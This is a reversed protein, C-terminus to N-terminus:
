KGIARALVTRIVERDERLATDVTSKWALDEDRKARCYECENCHASLMNALDKRQEVPVRVNPFEMNFVSDRLTLTEMLLTFDLSLIWRGLGPYSCKLTGVTEIQMKGTVERILSELLPLLEEQIEASVSQM